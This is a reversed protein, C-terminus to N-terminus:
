SLPMAQEIFYISNGYGDLTTVTASSEVKLERTVAALEDLEVCCSFIPSPRFPRSGVRIWPRPYRAMSCGSRWFSTWNAGGNARAGRGDPREQRQGLRPRFRVVPDFGRGEAPLRREVLQAVDADATVIADARRIDTARVRM